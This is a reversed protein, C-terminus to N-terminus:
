GLYCPKGQLLAEFKKDQLGGQVQRGKHDNFLAEVIDRERYCTRQVVLVKQHLCCKRLDTSPSQPCLMKESVTSKVNYYALAPM